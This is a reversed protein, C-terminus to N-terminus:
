EPHQRKTQRIKKKQLSALHQRVTITAPNEPGLTKERTLLARQYLPEAQEFKGQDRYLNALNNLTTATDPHDSGLVQERITLARQYLPEAQEFKGQDSYLLALNNLTQATDPHDPGLVRERIALARQYLPEAQAFNGQDTYLHALNNLAKATYPHDPGLVHERIALARQYLPEAAAHKGQKRYLNALGNLSYAVDPHESGLHQERIRLARQYLPEAAAYKSQKRYLNALGYLSCAVDPHEPGLAQEWIHLARQYLPEAQEYKGQQRYLEALNNLSTATDPHLLGSQQESIELARKWLPEAESYRARESLYHGIRNLLHTAESLSLHYQEIWAACALAHPLLRDCQAWTEFEGSPFVQNIIRVAREAWQHATEEDMSDLLVAQVLRHISLTKNSSDRRMLSYQLLTAITSNLAIRDNVISKLAPSFDAAGGIILEEPIADPALFASLQLLEVAAPSKQAIKEFALTWTTAVPRPHDPAVTGRIMLLERRQAQYLKIFDLLSCGTEQIYAGAQDLALPLSGLEATIARAQDITASPVEELTSNPQILGARRLLLLVGEEPTLTDVDLRRAVPGLSFARTTLIIHGSPASPLFERVMEVDDANDLILLWKLHTQLWQQVALLTLTQDQESHQPLELRRAIDAYGAILAERSNATVWFVADYDQRSRYAYELALQTKGIGGLGSIAQPQAVSMIQGARLAEALQALLSERGTFYPNQPYPVNWIPPFSGPFRPQGVTILTHFPSSPPKSAVWCIGELLVKRAEQEDLGVLDLYTILLWMSKRLDHMERVRVLIPARQDNSPGVNLAESWKANMSLADVYDPSLVALTNNTEELALTMEQAFSPGPPFSKQFVVSYGADELQWAIWEAWLRDAGTYSIFFDKRAAQEQEIM